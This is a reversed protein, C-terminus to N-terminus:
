RIQSHMLIMWPSESPLDWEQLNQAPIDLLSRLMKM